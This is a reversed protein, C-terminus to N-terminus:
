GKHLWTSWQAVSRRGLQCAAMLCIRRGRASKKYNLVKPCAWYSNFAISLATDLHLERPCDTECTKPFQPPCPCNLINYDAHDWKMIDVLLLTMTHTHTWICHKLHTFIYIYYIIHNYTYFQIYLSTCVYTHTHNHLIHLIHIIYFIISVANLRNPCFM